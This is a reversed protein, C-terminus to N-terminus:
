NNLYYVGAEPDKIRDLKLYNRLDMRLNTLLETKKKACEKQSEESTGAGSVVIQRCMEIQPLSGFLQIDAIAQKLDNVRKEFDEMQDNIPPKSAELALFRYADILYQTKIDTRKIATVQKPVVFCVTLFIVIINPIVYKIFGFMITKLLNVEGM